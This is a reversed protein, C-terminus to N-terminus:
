EGWGWYQYTKIISGVHSLLSKMLAIGRFTREIWVHPWQYWETIGARRTRMVTMAHSDASDSTKSGDKSGLQTFISHCQPTMRDARWDSPANRWTPCYVSHWRCHQSARRNACMALAPDGQARAAWRMGRHATTTYKTRLAGGRAMCQQLMMGMKIRVVVVACDKIAHWVPEIGCHNGRRDYYM